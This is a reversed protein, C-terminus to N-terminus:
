HLAMTAIIILAAAMFIYGVIHYTENNIKEYVKIYVFGVILCFISILWAIIM